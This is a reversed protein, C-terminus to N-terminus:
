TKISSLRHEIPIINKIFIKSHNKYNLKKLVFTPISKNKNLQRTLVTFYKKREEGGWGGGGDAFREL